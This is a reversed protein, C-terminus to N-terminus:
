GGPASRKENISIALESTPSSQLPPFSQPQSQIRFKPLEASNEFFQSVAAHETISRCGRLRLQDEHAVVLVLVYEISTPSRIILACVAM